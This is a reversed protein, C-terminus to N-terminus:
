NDYVTVPPSAVTFLGKVIDHSAVTYRQAKSITMAYYYFYLVGRRRSGKDREWHSIM